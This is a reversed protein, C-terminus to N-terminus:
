ASHRPELADDQALTSKLFFVNERVYLHQPIDAFSGGIGNTMHREEYVDM